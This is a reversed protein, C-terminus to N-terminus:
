APVKRRFLSEGRDSYVKTVVTDISVEAGGAVLPCGISDPQDQFGNNYL